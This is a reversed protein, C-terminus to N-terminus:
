NSEIDVNYKDFRSFNFFQALVLGGFYVFALAWFIDSAFHDGEAMRSVGIVAGWILGAAMFGRALWSRRHRLFFFPAMLFFSIGAHGSPFSRDKPQDSLSLVPVFPKEGGFVITDKPRTRNYHDKFVFNILVGPVLAAYLALFFGIKRYPRLRKIFFSLVGALFGGIGLLNGPWPGYKYCLQVMLAKEWFWGKVPHYFWSSIRVDWDTWRFFLTAGVLLLLPIVVLVIRECKAPKKEM